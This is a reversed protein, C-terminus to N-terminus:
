MGEQAFVLAERQRSFDIEELARKNASTQGVVVDDQIVQKDNTELTAPVTAVTKGEKLFRVQVTPGVGQWEVKYNGPNLQTSGVRVTDRIDVSHQNKDRALAALPFLLALTSLLALLNPRKM